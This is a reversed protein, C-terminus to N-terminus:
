STRSVVYDCLLELVDRAPGAPLPKLAGTEPEILFGRYGAVADAMFHEVIAAPPYGFRETTHAYLEIMWIAADAGRCARTAGKLISLEAGEADCKIFDVRGLHLRTLLQDLTTVACPYGTADVDMAALSAFGFDTPVSLVAQGVYDAVASEVISLHPYRQASAELLRVGAPNPEIAVVRGGPSTLEAFLTTYWGLNAGIDVATAGSRVFARVVRTEARESLNEGYFLYPMCAQERLDLHLIRGDTMGVPVSRLAPIHRALFMALRGLGPLHLDVRLWRVFAVWRPARSPM